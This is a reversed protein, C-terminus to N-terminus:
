TLAGIAWGVYVKETVLSSGLGVEFM